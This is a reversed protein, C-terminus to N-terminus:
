KKLRMYESHLLAIIILDVVTLIILLISHARIIRIVQYIVLLSLVVGALPYAWLKKLMLGAVLGIKIAGHIILYFAIFSVTSATATQAAHLLFNALLDTPDQVLEHSFVSRVLGTLSESRVIFLAIGGLLELIGDMGKIIISTIFIRHLIREREM